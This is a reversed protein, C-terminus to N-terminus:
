AKLIDKIETLSKKAKKLEKIKKYAGVTKDYDFIHMKGITATPKFLGLKYWYTLLSKNTKLEISLQALSVSKTM